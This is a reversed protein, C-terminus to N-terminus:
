RMGAADPIPKEITGDEGVTNHEWHPATNETLWTPNATIANYCKYLGSPRRVISGVAYDAYGSWLPYLEAYELAGADTTVKTLVGDIKNRFSKAEARTM